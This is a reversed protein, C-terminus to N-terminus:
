DDPAIADLKSSPLNGSRHPKISSNNAATSRRIRHSAVAVVGTGDATM